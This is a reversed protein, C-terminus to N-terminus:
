PVVELTETVLTHRLEGSRLLRVRWTYLGFDLGDSENKTLSITYYGEAAQVSDWTTQKTVLPYGAREITVRLVDTPLLTEACSECHSALHIPLPVGYDGKTM